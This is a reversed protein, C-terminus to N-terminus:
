SCATESPSTNSEVEANREEGHPHNASLIFKLVFLIASPYRYLWRWGKEVVGVVGKRRWILLATLGGVMMVPHRYVFRVGKLGVDVIGMPKQLHGSIGAMEMRQAEIRKLIELRRDALNALQKKM